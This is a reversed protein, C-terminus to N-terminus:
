VVYRQTMAPDARGPRGAIGAVCYEQFLHGRNEIRLRDSLLEPGLRQKAINGEGDLVAVPDAQDTGIARALGRQQGNKGPLDLRVRTLQRYALPGVGGVHGLVRMKGGAEGDTLNQLPRQGGRM